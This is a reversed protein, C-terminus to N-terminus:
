CSGATGRSYSEVEWITPELNRCFVDIIDILMGSDEGKGCNGNQCEVLLFCYLSVGRGSLELLFM